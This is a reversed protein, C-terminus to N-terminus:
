WIGPIKVESGEAQLYGNNAFSGDSNQAFVGILGDKLQGVVLDPRGDGTVDHWGPGAYGPAPTKIAVGDAMLQVPPAFLSDQAEDMDVGNETTAISTSTGCASLLVGSLVATTAPLGLPSGFRRDKFM